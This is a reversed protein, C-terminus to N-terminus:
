RDEPADPASRWYAFVQDLQRGEFTADDDVARKLGLEEGLQDFGTGTRKQGQGKQIVVASLMPRGHEVEFQSIAGLHQGLLRRHHPNRMTLGVIEGADTYTMTRGARAAAVLVEYLNRNMEVPAKVAAASPRSVSATVGLRALATDIDKQLFVSANARAEVLTAVAVPRAPGMAAKEIVRVAFAALKPDDVWPGVATVAVTGYAAIPDRLEIRDVPSAARAQDLLDGLSRTGEPM